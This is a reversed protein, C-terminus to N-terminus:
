FNMGFAPQFVHLFLRRSSAPTNPVVTNLQVKSIYTEPTPSPHKKPYPCKDSQQPCTLTGQHQAPSPPTHDYSPCKTGSSRSQETYFQTVIVTVTCLSKRGM